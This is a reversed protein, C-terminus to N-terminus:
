REEGAGLRPAERQQALMRETFDLREELEGLRQRMQDVDLLRAEVEPSLTETPRAGGEIRRGLARGLPGFFIGLAAFGVALWFAMDGIGDGM